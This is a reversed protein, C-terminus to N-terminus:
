KRKAHFWYKEDTMTNNKNVKALKRRFATVVRLQPKEVKRYDLIKTFHNIGVKINYVKKSKALKKGLSTFVMVERKESKRCDVIQTFHLNVIEMYNMDDHWSYHWNQGKRLYLTWTRGGNETNKFDAFAM